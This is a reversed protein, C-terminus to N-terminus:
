GSLAKILKSQYAVLEFYEKFSINNRNAKINCIMSNINAVLKLKNNSSYDCIKGVFKINDCKIYETPQDNNIILSSIKNSYKCKSEKMNNFNLLDNSTDISFKRLINNEKEFCYDDENAEEHKCPKNLITLNLKLRRRLLNLKNKKLYILFQIYMKSPFKKKSYHYIKAYRKDKKSWKNSLLLSNCKHFHIRKFSRSDSKIKVRKNFSNLNHNFENLCNLSSNNPYINIHDASVFDKHILSEDKEYTATNKKMSKNQFYDKSPSRENINYKSSYVNVDLKFNSSYGDKVINQNTANEIYDNTSINAFVGRRYEMSSEITNLLHVEYTLIKNTNYDLM